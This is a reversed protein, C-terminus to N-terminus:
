LFPQVYLTFYKKSLEQAENMGSADLTEAIADRPNKANDLGQAVAVNAWAYAEIANREVGDGTGYCIALNLQADALGRKAANLYWKVAERYDQPIGEYHLQGLNFTSTLHGQEAARLYWKRAEAYDQPVGHGNHYIVGLQNQAAPHGQQAAGLYWQRAEGYDQSVGEGHHYLIGLNFQAEANGQAALSRIGAVENAATPIAVTEAFGTSPLSMLLFLLLTFSVHRKM